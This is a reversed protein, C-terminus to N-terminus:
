PAQFTFRKQGVVNFECLVGKKDVKINVASQVKEVKRPTRSVFNM